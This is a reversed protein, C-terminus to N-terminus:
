LHLIPHLRVSGTPQCLKPRRDKYLHDDFPLQLFLRIVWSKLFKFNTIFFDNTKIIAVIIKAKAANKTYLYEPRPPVVTKLSDCVFWVFVVVGIIIVLGAKKCLSPMRFWYTASASPKM